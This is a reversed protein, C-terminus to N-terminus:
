WGGKLNAEHQFRGFTKALGLTSPLSGYQNSFSLSFARLQSAVNRGDGALGSVAFISNDDIRMIKDAISIEELTHLKKTSPALLVVEKSKFVVAALLPNGRMGALRAYDVQLLEGDSSFKTIDKDYLRYSDGSRSQVPQLFTLSCILVCINILVQFNEAGIM